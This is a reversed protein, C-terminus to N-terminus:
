SRALESRREHELWAKSLVVLLASASLPHPVYADAGGDLLQEVGSPSQDHSVAILYHEVTGALRTRFIRRVAQVQTAGAHIALIVVGIPRSELLPKLDEARSLEIPSAGAANEFLGVLRARADPEGDMVVVRQALQQLKTRMVSSSTEHDQAFEIQDRTPVVPVTLVVQACWPAEPGNSVKVEAKLMDAFRDAIALSVSTGDVTRGDTLSIGGLHHLDDM